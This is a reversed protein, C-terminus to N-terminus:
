SMVELQGVLDVPALIPAGRDSLDLLHADGSVILAKQHFALAILYDDEPDDCRLPPPDVPDPVLSADRRLGEMLVPVDGAELYRRFKPRSLVEELEALLRPSLVLEFEGDRVAKLLRGPVGGRKIFAAVFVSTDLVLRRM